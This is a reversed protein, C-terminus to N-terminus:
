QRRLGRFHSRETSPVVEKQKLDAVEFSVALQQIPLIGVPPSYDGTSIRQIVADCQILRRADFGKGFELTLIKALEQLRGKAM